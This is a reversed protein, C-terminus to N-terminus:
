QSYVPSTGIDRWASRCGPWSKRSGGENITPYLSNRRSQQTRSSDPKLLYMGDCSLTWDQDENKSRTLWAANLPWALYVCTPYASLLSTPKYEVCPRSAYKRGHVASGSDTRNWQRGVFFPTWFRLFNSPVEWRDQIELASIFPIQISWKLDLM